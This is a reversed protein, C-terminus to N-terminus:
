EAYVFVARRNWKWASEDHGEVDPREEGFSVTRIQDNSVGQLSLFQKVSFARREGLAMNYERTGREDCHGEIALSADPNSALYNAHARLVERFEPKIESRDFDFYIKRESLLAASADTEDIIEEATAAADDVGTSIASDAAGEDLRTGSVSDGTTAGSDVTVEQGAAAEEEVAKDGGCGVIMLVPLIAVVLKIVPKM